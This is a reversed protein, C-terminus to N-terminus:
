GGQSTSSVEVSQRIIYKINRRCILSALDWHVDSLHSSSCSKVPFATVSTQFSSTLQYEFDLSYAACIVTKFRYDAAIKGEEIMHSDISLREGLYDISVKNPITAVTMNEKSIRRMFRLAIAKRFEEVEENFINHVRLFLAMIVRKRHRDLGTLAASHRCNIDLNKSSTKYIVMKSRKHSSSWRLNIKDEYQMSFNM